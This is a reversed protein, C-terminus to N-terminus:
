ASYDIKIKKTILAKEIADVKGQLVFIYTLLAQTSINSYELIQDMRTNYAQYSSWGNWRGAIKSHEALEKDTVKFKYFAEITPNKLLAITM